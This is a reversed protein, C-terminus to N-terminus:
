WFSRMAGDCCIAELRKYDKMFDDISPVTVLNEGTTASNEGQLFVEVVGSEGFRYDLRRGSEVGLEDKGLILEAANTKTGRGGHYKQRMSRAEMIYRCAQEDEDTISGAGCFIPFRTFSLADREPWIGDQLLFTDFLSFNSNSSLLSPASPFHSSYILRCIRM